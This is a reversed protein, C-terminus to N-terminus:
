EYLVSSKTGKKLTLFFEKALCRPSPDQRLSPVLRFTTALVGDTWEHTNADFCGYLQDLTISKPNIIM